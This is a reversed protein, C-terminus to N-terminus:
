FEGLRSLSPHIRAKVLTVIAIEPVMSELPNQCFCWQGPPKLEGFRALVEVAKNLM